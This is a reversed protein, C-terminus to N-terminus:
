YDICTLTWNGSEQAGDINRDCNSNGRNTIVYILRRLYIEAPLNHTEITIFGLSANRLVL